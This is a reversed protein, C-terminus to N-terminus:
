DTVSLEEWLDIKTDHLLHEEEQKLLEEILRADPKQKELSMTGRLYRMQKEAIKRAQRHRITDISERLMPVIVLDCCLADLIKELTSFTAERGREVHSIMPQPLKARKALTKQTMGLQIRILKILKGIAQNRCAAKAEGAARTIEDLLIKESTRTNPM